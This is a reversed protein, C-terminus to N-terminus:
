KVIVPGCAAAFALALPRPPAGLEVEEECVDCVVPLFGIFRASPRAKLRFTRGGGSGRGPLSALSRTNLRDPRMEVPREDIELTMLSLRQGGGSRPGIEARGGHAYSAVREISDRMPAHVCPLGTIAIDWSTKQREFRQGSVPWPEFGSMCIWLENRSRM